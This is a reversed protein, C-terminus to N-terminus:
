RLLVVIPYRRHPRFQGTKTPQLQRDTDDAHHHNCVQLVSPRQEDIREVLFEMPPARRDLHSERDEDYHLSPEHWELAVDDIPETGPDNDAGAAHQDADGPGEIRDRVRQRHKIDAGDEAADAGARTA